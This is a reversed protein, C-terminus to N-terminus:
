DAVPQRRLHVVDGVAHDVVGGAVRVLLHGRDDVDEAFGEVTGEAREVQVTRGITSSVKRYEEPVADLNGLRRDLGALWADLVAQRDVPRGALQELSVAGDPLDVSRLNLGMGVVLASLAGADIVSEALLGALKAETVGDDVVVDNPWKLAARAGAVLQCAEVAALGSAFTVLHARAVPVDPRLLVSVLLSAGPAAQWSRGLRGRGATQHDAVLVLGAPAGARARDLLSRNTSDVEDVM